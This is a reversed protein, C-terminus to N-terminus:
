RTERLRTVIRRGEEMPRPSPWDSKLPHVVRLSCPRMPINWPQVGMKGNGASPTELTNGNLHGIMLAIISGGTSRAFFISQRGGIGMHTTKDIASGRARPAM